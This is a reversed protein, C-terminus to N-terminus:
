GEELSPHLIKYEVRKRPEAMLSDVASRWRQYHTTERHKVPADDSRYIELLVFRSPDDSQQYFDFRAIGPELNSNHANDTTAIIFEDIFESKVHANVIVVLM